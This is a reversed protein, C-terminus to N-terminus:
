PMEKVTTEATPKIITKALEDWRKQVDACFKAKDEIVCLPVGWEIKGTTNYYPSQKLFDLISKCGQKINAIPALVSYPGAKKSSFQSHVLRKKNYGNEFTDIVELIDMHSSFVHHGGGQVKLDSGSMQHSLIFAVNDSCGNNRAFEFEKLCRSFETGTRLAVCAAVLIDHPTDCNMRIGLRSATSLKKTTFACAWPSRNLIYDTYHAYQMGLGGEIMYDMHGQWSLVLQNIGCLTKNCGLEAHCAARTSIVHDIGGEWGTSYAFSCLGINETEVQKRLTKALSYCPKKPLDEKVAKVNEKIQKEVQAM